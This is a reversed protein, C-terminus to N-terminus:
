PFCRLVSTFNQGRFNFISRSCLLSSFSRWRSLFSFIPDNILVVIAVNGISPKWHFTVRSLELSSISPSLIGWDQCITFRSVHISIALFSIVGGWFILYFSNCKPICSSYSYKFEKSFFIHQAGHKIKLIAQRIMVELSTKFFLHLIFLIRSSGGHLDEM